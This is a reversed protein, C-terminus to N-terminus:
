PLSRDVASQNRCVNEGEQDSPDAVNSTDNSRGFVDPGSFRGPSARLGHRTLGGSRFSLMRVVTRGDYRGSDARGDYRGSDVHEGDIHEIRALM